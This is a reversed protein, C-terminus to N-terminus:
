DSGAPELFAGSSPSPWRAAAAAWTPSWRADHRHDAVLAEVVLELLWETEPRPILVHRNVKFPLGSFEARGVIYAGAERMARRSVGWRSWRWRAPFRPRATPSSWVTPRRVVRCCIFRSASPIASARRRSARDRPGPKRSPGLADLIAPSKEPRGDEARCTAVDRAQEALARGRRRAARDSRWGM